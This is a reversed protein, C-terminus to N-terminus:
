CKSSGHDLRRARGGWQETLLLSGATCIGGSICPKSGGFQPPPTRHRISACEMDDPILGLTPPCSSRAVSLCPTGGQSGWQPGVSASWSDPSCQAVAPGCAAMRRLIGPLARWGLASAEALGTGSCDALTCPARGGPVLIHHIRVLLRVALNIVSSRRYARILLALM